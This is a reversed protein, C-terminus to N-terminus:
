LGTVWSVYVDTGIVIFNYLTHKNAITPGNDSPLHVTLSAGGIATATFTSTGSTAGKVALTYSGGDKLNTLTFAGASATTGALNSLAFNISTGTAAISSTNSSAGNVELKTNPASVGIGINGNGLWTMVTSTFNEDADNLGLDLRSAAAGGSSYSGLNFQAINATKVNNTAPRSLRLMQADVNVTNTANLNNNLHLLTNPAETGIGVNGNSNIKLRTQPNTQGTSVTQFAFAMPVSATSTNVDGEVSTMFRAGNVAGNGIGGRFDLVGILDGNNVATPNALSGRHKTMTFYSANNAGNGGYIETGVASFVGGDSVQLFGVSGAKRVVISKNIDSAGSIGTMDGIQLINNDHIVLNNLSTRETLGNSLKNLKVYNNFSDYSWKSNDSDNTISRWITGDWMWISNTTTDFVQMGFDTTNNPSIATRENSTMRPLLFGKDKATLDLISKQSPTTTGIGVQSYISPSITILLIVLLILKKMFFKNLKKLLL